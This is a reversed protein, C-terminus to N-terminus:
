QENSPRPQPPHHGGSEEPAPPRSAAASAPPTAFATPSEARLGPSGTSARPPPTRSAPSCPPPRIFYVNLGSVNWSRAPGCPLPRRGRKASSRPLNEQAPLDAGQYCPLDEPLLFEELIKELRQPSHYARPPRPRGSAPRGTGCWSCGRPTVPRFTQRIVGDPPM